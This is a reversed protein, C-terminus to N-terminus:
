RLWRYTLFLQKEVVQIDLYLLLDKKQFILQFDVVAKVENQSGRNFSKSIHKLKIM